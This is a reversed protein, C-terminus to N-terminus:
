QNLYWPIAKKPKKNTNTDKNYAKKLKRLNTKVAYSRRKKAVMSSFRDFDNLSAKKKRMALKKAWSTGEWKKLVQAKEFEKKLKKLRAGRAIDIKFDTLSLYRMKIASRPVGTVDSPGDVLVRNHDIVDVIVCLKGQDPGYNVLVVRGIEVFRKFLPAPMPTKAQALVFWVKYLGFLTQRYNKDFSQLVGLTNLLIM